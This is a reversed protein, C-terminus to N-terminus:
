VKAVIPHVFCAGRVTPVLIIEPNVILVHLIYIDWSVLATDISKLEVATQINPVIFYGSKHLITIKHHLDLNSSYIHVTALAQAVLLGALVAIFAASITIKQPKGTPHM